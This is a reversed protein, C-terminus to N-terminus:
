DFDSENSAASINTIFFFLLRTPVIHQKRGSSVLIKVDEIRSYISSM